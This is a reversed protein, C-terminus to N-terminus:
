ITKVGFDGAATLVQCYILIPCKNFRQKNQFKNILTRTKREFLNKNARFIRSITQIQDLAHAIRSCIARAVLEGSVSLAWDPRPHRARALGKTAAREEM